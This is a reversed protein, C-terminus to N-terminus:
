FFKKDEEAEEDLNNKSQIKKIKKNKKNTKIRNKLAGYSIFKSIKNLNEIFNRFM